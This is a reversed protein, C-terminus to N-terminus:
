PRENRRKTVYEQRGCDAQLLNMATGGFRSSFNTAPYVGTNFQKVQAITAMFGERTLDKGTAQLMAAVVKEV